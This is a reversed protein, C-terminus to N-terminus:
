RNKIQEAPKVTGPVFLAFFGATIRKLFISRRMIYRDEKYLKKIREGDESKKDGKYYIEIFEIKDKV